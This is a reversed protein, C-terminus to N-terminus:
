SLKEQCSRITEISSPLKVVKKEIFMLSLRCPCLTNLNWVLATRIKVYRVIWSLYLANFGLKMLVLM